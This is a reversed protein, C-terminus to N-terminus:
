KKLFLMKTQKIEIIYIGKKTYASLDVAEKDNNIIGTQLKKGSLDYVNFTAKKPAKLINTFDKVVTPAVTVADMAFGTEKTGLVETFGTVIVSYNQPSTVSPSANNKLTGKHSIEIRYVAGPTPTDIVVQEVNDVTNDGKTAPLM